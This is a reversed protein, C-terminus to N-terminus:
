AGADDLPRDRCGAGLEPLRRQQRAVPRRSRRIRRTPDARLRTGIAGGDDAHPRRGSPSPCRRIARTVGVGPIGPWDTRHWRYEDPSQLVLDWVVPEGTQTLRTEGRIRGRIRNQDAEEIDYETRQHVVGASDTWPRAATIIMVERDPSFAITHPDRECFGEAGEWDWRGTVATFIDSSAPVEYTKWPRWWVILLVVLIFPIGLLLSVDRYFTDDGTKVRNM